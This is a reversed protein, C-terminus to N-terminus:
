KSGCGTTCQDFASTCANSRGCAFLRAGCAQMCRDWNQSAPTPNVDLVNGNRVPKGAGIAKAAPCSALKYERQPPPLLRSDEGVLSLDSEINELSAAGKILKSRALTEVAWCDARHANEVSRDVNLPLGLHTWACEHAYLFARTEPLLQPLMSPNYYIVRNGEVVSTTLLVPLDPTSQSRVPKNSVDTCGAFSFTVTDAAQAAPLLGLLLFSCLAILRTM